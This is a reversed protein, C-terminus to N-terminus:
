FIKKNYLKSLITITKVFDMRNHVSGNFGLYVEDYPVRSIESIYRYMGEHDDRNIHPHKRFLRSKLYRRVTDTLVAGKSIKLMFYGAAELHEMVNRVTYDELVLRPGLMIGIRAIVGIIFLVLLFLFLYHKRCIISTLTPTLTNYIIWVKKYDSTLKLLFWAHDNNGIHENMLFESDSLVYLHGTGTNVMVFHNNVTGENYTNVEGSDCILFRNRIFELTLRSEDQFPIIENEKTRMGDMNQEQYDTDSNILRIGFRDLITTVKEASDFSQKVEPIIILSGGKRIWDILMSENKDTAHGNYNNIIIFHEPDPMTEFILQNRATEVEMGAKKLLQEAALFPNSMAKESPPVSIRTYKKEFALFFLLVAGATFVATLIYPIFRKM